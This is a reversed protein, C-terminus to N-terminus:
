TGMQDLFRKEFQPYTTLLTASEGMNAALKTESERRRAVAAADGIRADIKIKANLSKINEIVEVFRRYAEEEEGGGGKLKKQTTVRAPKRCQFKKLTRGKTQLVSKVCIAIAGKEKTSGQRAKITKRVAKICRCFKRTQGGGMIENYYVCFFIDECLIFM